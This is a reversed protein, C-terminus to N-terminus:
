AGQNSTSGFLQPKNGALPVCASRAWGEASDAVDAAWTAEEEASWLSESELHERLLEIPDEGDDPILAEVLCGGGGERAANAAKRIGHLVACADTGDVRLGEVGYAIARSAIGGGSTQELRGDSCCVFIAAAEFVGTFNLAVHFHDQNAGTEGFLAASVQADGRLRAAWGVGMAHAVRAASPSSAAVHRLPRGCTLDLGGGDPVQAGTFLWDGDMLGHALGAIVGERGRLPHHWQIRGRAAMDALVDDAARLEVMSRYLAIRESQSPLAPRNKASSTLIRLTRPSSV